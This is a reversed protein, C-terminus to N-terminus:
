LTLNRVSVEGSYVNRLRRDGAASTIAGYLDLTQADQEVPFEEPTRVSLGIRVAVVDSFETWNGANVWRNVSFDGTLDEGYQVQLNEVGDAVADNIQLALTGNPPGYLCQYILQNNVVSFRVRKLHFLPKTLTSGDPRTVTETVTNFARLCDRDTEYQLEIVDPANDGGDQTNGTFAFGFQPPEWVQERFGARQVENTILQFAFRGNEQLRGMQEQTLYSTRGASYMMVAVISLLVVILLAIMLEILGLGFQLQYIRSTPPRPSM